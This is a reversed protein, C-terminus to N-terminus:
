TAASTPRSRRAGQRDRALAGRGRDRGLYKFIEGARQEGIAVLLAAAKQIGSCSPKAARRRRATALAASM